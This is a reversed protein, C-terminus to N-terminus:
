VSFFTGHAGFNPTGYRGLYNPKDFRIKLEDFWVKPGHLQIQVIFHVSSGLKTM